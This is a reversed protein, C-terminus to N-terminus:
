RRAQLYDRPSVATVEEPLDPKVFGPKPFPHAPLFHPNPAPAPPVDGLLPHLPQEAEAGQMGRCGEPDKQMGRSGESDKQLGRFGELDKQTRRCGGQIGRCEESDKQM